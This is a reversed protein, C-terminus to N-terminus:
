KVFEKMVLPLVDVISPSWFIGREYVLKAAVFCAIMAKQHIPPINAFIRERYKERFLPLCYLELCKFLFPDPHKQLDIPELYDLIQYMYTNIKESIQDSIQTLPMKTKEHTKLLLSAEKGAKDEIFAFVDKMLKPKEEIFEKESLILGAQVELSSCIVGAKNASSDKVILVGKKELAERAENTLYLNAGEIIAKSTPAGNPDLYDKWNSANLTRPRGGGPVFVDVITQHLNHRFLHHTDNGSIWDKVTKNGKKRYCLTEQSYSSEERKTQLDLLFGGEHLKEPNYFRIPKAEKFLKALEELDLGEPDYMTGSVDTIALLKATKPYYKYLNYIQNGAVDGDPGGSIKVTFPDNIPNIGMYELVKHMYVNVGYSTIGYEKHNIGINPKSSIFAKGPKYGVTKSFDAIWELMSNHMNEDPGLYLYEPKKLYDIVNKAKLSGDDNCNVLTVLSHVYARQSQYLYTLRQEEQNRIVKKEIELEEMGSQILEQKYIQAEIKLDEFPEVFIVGKAGGEPIDKNKKQQTYALNYCEAFINVREWNAQEYRMPFITRLGGRSLDKFRIHFGIFAQGKIFFIAYPIEPFKDKRDYPLYDILKPDLRFALASKNDRYFNTKDLYEIILMATRLINKRRTDIAINGTDLKDTLRIFEEKTKEFLTESVEKPHFKYEFAKCLLTTLEPHRCFGEEVNGLSYINVDIPLLFQHILSTFSRLLNALNGRLIKPAVLSSEILDNDEFYKLTALEQLFDGINTADWASIDGQGHIALSMVLISNKSYPHVYAANVRKMILNHRHILKALKYLFNHKETNRWGLVIQMSPIQKEEQKWKENYKVAYQLHDRTKARFFMELVLLLREQNLTRLFKSGLCELLDEFEEYTVSPNTKKLTNLIEEKSIGKLLDNKLDEKEGVQTFHVVAIRLNQKIGQLPLPANSVFTQYNKVGFYTYNKLIKLDADPSDLCMVISCNKFHTEIFHGQLNFGMLNHAITVLQSENFEEFFIPPMHKELWLYFTEFQASETEIAEQLYKNRNKNKENM